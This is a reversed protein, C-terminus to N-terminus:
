PGVYVIQGETLGSLIEVSDTGVLGVGVNVVRRGTPTQIQVYKRSGASHLAAKPIVLADPKRLVQIQVQGVLAWPVARTGWNVHVQVVRGTQGQASDTIATVAGSFPVPDSDFTITAPQDVAIKSVDEATPMVEVIAAGPGALSLLPADKTLKDGV